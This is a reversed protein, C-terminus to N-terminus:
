LRKNTINMYLIIYMPYFLSWKRITIKKKSDGTKPKTTTNSVDQQRKNGTKSIFRGGYFSIMYFIEKIDGKQIYNRYIILNLQNGSESVTGFSMTFIVM